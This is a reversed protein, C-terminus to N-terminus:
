ANEAVREQLRIGEESKEIGMTESMRSTETSRQIANDVFSEGPQLIYDDSVKILDSVGIYTSLLKQYGRFELILPYLQDKPYRKQLKIMATEDFTLKKTRRDFVPQHHKVRQYDMLGLKSIKWPALRFYEDVQKRVENPTLGACLNAKKKFSKFHAKGPREIGCGSCTSVNRYGPRVLLGTTDKPTTKYVHAIRRAERPILEQIKTETDALLASLRTEADSRLAEDRLVGKSSMYDFVRNVKLAHREFVEWQNNVHLDHEIGMWCRLAADADKANYFAPHQKSLHKWMGWRKAYFPTVFGLGKPLASHLIHWAVMGDIRDGNIPMHVLIREDDYQRSNWGLKPGESAMLKQITPIYHATWPVSCARGEQYAFGIRLISFDDDEERAVDEEDLGSKHATEIDYSLIYTTPFALYPAAWQSFNVAIPDLEYNDHTEYAFGESAVELARQVTYQFIPVLHHNGRMLYSPHDVCFVWAEYQQSWHPYALYDYKIDPTQDTWGLIRKAAVKGVALIVPHKGKTACHKAHDRITADLLPACSAIVSGEYPMGALKNDPPRCSLVNALRFGEREIGVRALQQFFFYGAKGRLGEGLETENEGAAEAVLLVGNDGTGSAPVYGCTGWAYGLCSKCYDPKNLL